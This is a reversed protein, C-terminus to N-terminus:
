VPEPERCVEPADDNTKTKGLVDGLEKDKTRKGKERERSSLAQHSLSSCSPVTQSLFSFEEEIM